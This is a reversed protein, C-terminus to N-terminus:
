CLREATTSWDNQATTAESLEDSLCSLHRLLTDRQADDLLTVRASTFRHGVEEGHQAIEDILFRSTGVWRESGLRTSHGPRWPQRSYHIAGIQLRQRQAQRTDIR